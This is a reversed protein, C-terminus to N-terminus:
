GFISNIAQKAKLAALRPPVKRMMAGKLATVRCWVCILQCTLQSSFLYYYLLLSSIRLIEKAYGWNCNKINDSGTVANPPRALVRFDVIRGEDDLTVLDVGDVVARKDGEIEASFELCQYVSLDHTCM